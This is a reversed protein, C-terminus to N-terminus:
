THTLDGSSSSTSNQRRSASRFTSTRGPVVQSAGPQKRIESVPDFSINSRASGTNTSSAPQTRIPSHPPSGRGAKVLVPPEPRGAELYSRMSSTLPLLTLALGVLGFTPMLPSFPISNLEIGIWVMHGLGILITAIWAWHHGTARELRRLREWRPRRLVGYLAVLSGLGFGVFLILGPLLWSDVLPVDDLYEDPLFSEGGFGFIMALGGGVAGLGLVLLLVGTVIAEWPRTQKPHVLRVSV